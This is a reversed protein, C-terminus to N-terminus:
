GASPRACRFGKRSHRKKSAQLLKRTERQAEEVIKSRQNGYEKSDFVKPIEIRLIKIVEDMDKQFVAAKGPDLSVALPVDPNRFNYVYCWDKPVPESMARQSLFSRVTTMKGTGDEGLIFINFGASELSLGFDLSHLAREQGITEKLDPLDNTTNFTFIGPDCFRYLENVDLKEPM